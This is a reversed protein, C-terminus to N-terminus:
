RNIRFVQQQHGDFSLESAFGFQQLVCNNFRRYLRKTTKSEEFSSLADSVSHSPPPPSSRKSQSPPSLHKKQPSFSHSTPPSSPSYAPPTILLPPTRRKQTSSQTLNSEGSVTKTIAAGKTKRGEKKTKTARTTRTTSSTPNLLSAKQLIRCFQTVDLDFHYHHSGELARKLDMRCVM